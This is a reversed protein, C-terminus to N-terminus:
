LLLDHSGKFADPRYLDIRSEYHRAKPNVLGIECLSHM